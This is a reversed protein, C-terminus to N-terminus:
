WTYCHDPTPLHWGCLLKSMSPINNYGPGVVRFEKRITVNTTTTGFQHKCTEREKHLLLTKLTLHCLLVNFHSDTILCAEFSEGWCLHFVVQSSNRLCVRHPSQVELGRKMVFAKCPLRWSDCSLHRCLGNIESFTNSFLLM